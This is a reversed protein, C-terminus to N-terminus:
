ECYKAILNEFKQQNAVREEFVRRANDAAYKLGGRKLATETEELTINTDTDPAKEEEEAGDVEMSPEEEEKGTRLKFFQLKGKSKTRQGNEQTQDM